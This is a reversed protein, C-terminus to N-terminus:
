LAGRRNMVALTAALPLVIWLVLLGVLLPLLLEGFTRTAYLGAPGLAELGGRISLLAALKFEELPNVLAAFLLERADLKLVLSTGLLGLDGLLVLVLWVFLALGAAVSGKAALASILLGLSVASLAVLAALLLFVLFPGASGEGVRRAIVLAALGFGALISATVAAGLGLFKGAVVELRSVPQALLYLLAGREREPAIAGAGLTLGMLPVVLTVLNILSAATRALSTFGGSGSVGALGIWSMALALVTFVASYLVFWRNRWADRLETSLLLAVQRFDFRPPRSSM